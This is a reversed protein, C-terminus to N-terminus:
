GMWARHWLEFSWLAFLQRQNDQRRTVHDDILRAVQARDFYLPSAADPGLLDARVRGTLEEQFWRDMPTAFGVKRRQVVDRPLWASVAEKHIAKQRLGSIKLSSPISEVFRMLDLDLYPVRAEVSAAMSMKDGLLLLDDALSLRADVYQMQALPDLHEVGSRWYEVVGVSPAVGAASRLLARKAEETFVM